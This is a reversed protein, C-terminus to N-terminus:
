GVAFLICLFIIFLWPVFFSFFTFLALLTFTVRWHRSFHAEDVFISSAYKTAPFIWGLRGGSILWSMQFKNPLKAAERKRKKEGPMLEIPFHQFSLGVFICWCKMRLKGRSIDDSDGGEGYISRLRATSKDWGRTDLCGVEYCLIPQLGRSSARLRDM